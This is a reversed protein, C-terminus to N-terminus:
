SKVGFLGTFGKWAARLLYAGLEDGMLKVWAAGAPTDLVSHLDPRALRFTRMFDPTHDVFLRDALLGPHQWLYEAAREIYGEPIVGQDVLAQASSPTWGETLQHIMEVADPPPWPYGKKGNGPNALNM